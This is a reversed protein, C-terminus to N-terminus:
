EAVVVLKKASVGKKLTDLAVQVGELGRTAVVEPPPAVQYVGKELAEPLFGGFTAPLIETFVDVGGVGFVMKVEVGELADGPKVPNTSAVFLKQKSKHAVQCADAVNGM